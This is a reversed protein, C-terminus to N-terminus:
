ARYLAENRAGPHYVQRRKFTSLQTDPRTGGQSIQKRSLSSDYLKLAADENFHEDFNVRQSANWWNKMM